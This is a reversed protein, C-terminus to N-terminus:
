DRNLVCIRRRVILSCNNIEACGRGGREVKLESIFLLFFTYGRVVKSIFLFAAMTNASPVNRSLVCSPDDGGWLGDGRM